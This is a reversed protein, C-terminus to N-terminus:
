TVGMGGGVCVCVNDGCPRALVVAPVMFRSVRYARVRAEECCTIDTKNVGGDSTHQVCVRSSVFDESVLETNLHTHTHTHTHLHALFFSLCLSLSLSQM